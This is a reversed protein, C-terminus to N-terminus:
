SPRPWREPSGRWDREGNEVAEQDTMLLRELDELSPRDREESPVTVEGDAPRNRLQHLLELAVRELSAIRRGAAGAWRQRRERWAQGAKWVGRLIEGQGDFAGGQLGLMFLGRLAPTDELEEQGITRRVHEWLARDPLDCLRRDRVERALQVTTAVMRMRLIADEGLGERSLKRLLAKADMRRWQAETRELLQDLDRDPIRAGLDMWDYGAPEAM